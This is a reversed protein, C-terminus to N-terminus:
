PAQISRRATRTSSLCARTCQTCQFPAYALSPNVSIQMIVHFIRMPFEELNETAGEKSQHNDGEGDCSLRLDRERVIEVRVEIIEGVAHGARYPVPNIEARPFEVVRAHAAAPQARSELAVGI